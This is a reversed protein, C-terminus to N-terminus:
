NHNVKNILVLMFKKQHIKIKNLKINKINLINLRIVM